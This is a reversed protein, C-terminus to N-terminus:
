WEERRKDRASASLPVGDGERGNDLRPRGRGGARGQSGYSDPQLQHACPLVGTIRSLACQVFGSRPLGSGGQEVVTFPEGSNGRKGSGCARGVCGSKRPEGEESEAPRLVQANVKRPSHNQM